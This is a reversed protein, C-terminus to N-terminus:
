GDGTNSGYRALTHHLAFLALELRNHVGLKDFITRVHQKVTSEGMALRAAIDSNSLGAVIMRIVDMERATLGFLRLDRLPRAIHRLADDLSTERNDGIWYEGAMVAHIANLLVKSTSAKM